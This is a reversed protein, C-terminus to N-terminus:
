NMQITKRVCYFNKKTCDQQLPEVSGAMDSRTNITVVNKIDDRKVAGMYINNHTMFHVNESIRTIIKLIYYLPSIDM